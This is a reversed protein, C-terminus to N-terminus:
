RKRVYKRLKCFRYIGYVGLLLIFFIGWYTRVGTKPNSENKDNPQREPEPENIPPHELNDKEGDPKTPESLIEPEHPNEPEPPTDPVIIVEPNEVYPTPSDAPITVEEPVKETSVPLACAHVGTVNSSRTDRRRSSFFFGGGGGGGGGVEWRIYRRGKIRGATMTGQLWM